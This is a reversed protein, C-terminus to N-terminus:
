GNLANYTYGYVYMSIMNLLEPPIEIVQLSWPGELRGRSLGDVPNSATDVRDYWAWVSRQAVQSSTYAAIIDASLVSSAGRVLSALACENDIFHLWMCGQMLHGWNHMVIAPGLAELEYIDYMDGGAERQRSWLERICEPVMIYGGLCRGDPLWVAAGVGGSGEGDSYSVAVPVTNLDLPIERPRGTKVNEMWFKVAFDLQPNWNSRREHQRRSFARLTARGFRGFYQSSQFQMRGFLQGALSPELRLRSLAETLTAQIKESRGQAPRLLMASKPFSRLDLEAMIRM